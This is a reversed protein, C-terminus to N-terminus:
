GCYFEKAVSALVFVSASWRMPVAHVLKLGVIDFLFPKWLREEISRTLRILHMERTIVHLVRIM